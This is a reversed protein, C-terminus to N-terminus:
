RLDKRMMTYVSRWDPLARIWGKRGWIELCDCGYQKAWAEIKAQHDERWHERNEGGLVVVQCSRRRQYANFRTIFAMELQAGRFSVWLHMQGQLLSDRLDEIGLNGDAYEVAPELLPAVIAWYRPVNWPEVARLENTEAPTVEVPGLM